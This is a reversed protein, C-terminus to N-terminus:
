AKPPIAPPKKEQNLAWSRHAKLISKRLSERSVGPHQSAVDDLKSEFIQLAGEAATDRLSSFHEYALILDELQKNM